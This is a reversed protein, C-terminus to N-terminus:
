QFTMAVRMLLTLYQASIVKQFAKLADGCWVLLFGKENFKAPAYRSDHQAATNIDM